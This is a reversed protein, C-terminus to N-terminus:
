ILNGLNIELKNEPDDEEDLLGEGGEDIGVGCGSDVGGGDVVVTSVIPLMGIVMLVGGGM